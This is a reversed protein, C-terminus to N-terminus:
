FLFETAASTASIDDRRTAAYFLQADAALLRWFKQRRGADLDTLADDILLLPWRGTHAQIHRAELLRLALAASKVQGESGFDRLSQGRLALTWDDRHPGLLATGRERERRWLEDRALELGRPIQPAFTLTLAEDAGALGTYFEALLPAAQATFEVRQRHIGDSLAALQATLASWLERDPRPGRLLANKQRLLLQARQMEGLYPPQAAALLGDAWQRRSQGGGSVIDRDRNQFVVAPARGWFERVSLYDRGDAALNRRAPSWEVKLRQRQGDADAFVGGLGFGAAGWRALERPQRTRFSRCRSLFYVAELVSTKGRGNPGLLLNCGTFGELKLEAHCRFNQLTLATLM